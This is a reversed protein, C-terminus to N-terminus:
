QRTLINWNVGYKDKVDATLTAWFVEEPPSILEGEKALQNFIMEVEEKSDFFLTFWFHTGEDTVGKGEGDTMVFHTDFMRVESFTVFDSSISGDLGYEALAAEDLGAEMPIDGMLNIRIVEAGLTEQYYQIAAHCTGPFCISPYCTKSLQMM